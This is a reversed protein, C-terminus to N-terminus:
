HAPSYGDESLIDISNTQKKKIAYNLVYLDNACASVHLITVGDKRPKLLSAGNDVLAEVCELEGRAAAWLM